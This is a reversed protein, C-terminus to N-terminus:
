RDRLAAHVERHRGFDSRLWAPVHVWARGRHCRERARGRGVREHEAARARVCLWLEAQLGRFQEDDMREPKTGKPRQHLAKITLNPRRSERSLQELRDKNNRDAGDEGRMNTKKGDMLLPADRFDREYVARGEETTLLSRANRTSLWRWDERTWELDAMRRTVALFRQADLRYRERRGVSWSM